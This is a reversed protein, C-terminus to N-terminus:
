YIAFGVTLQAGWENPGVLGYEGAAEVFVYDAAQIRLGSRAALSFSESTYTAADGAVALDTSVWAIDGVLDVFPTVKGTPPELGLGFRLENARLGRASASLKEGDVGTARTSELGEWTPYPRQYGLTMRIQSLVLRSEWRPGFVASDEFPILVFPEDLGALGENDSAIAFPASGYSRVGGMFGVGIELHTEESMIDGALAAGPFLFLAALAFRKM